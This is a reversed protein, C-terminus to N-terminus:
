ENKGNSPYLEATASFDSTASIRIKQLKELANPEDSALRLPNIRSIKLVPEEDETIIVDEGDLVSQFVQDVTSKAHNLDIATM